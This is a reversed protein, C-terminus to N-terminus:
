KIYKSAVKVGPSTGHLKDKYHGGGRRAMRYKAKMAPGKHKHTKENINSLAADVEGEVPCGVQREAAQQEMQRRMQEEYNSM